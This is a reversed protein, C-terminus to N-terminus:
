PCLFPLNLGLSKCTLTKPLSSFAAKKLRRAALSPGFLAKLVNILFSPLLIVRSSKRFLYPVGSLMIDPFSAAAPVTVITSGSLAFLNAAAALAATSFASSM